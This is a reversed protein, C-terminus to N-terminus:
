SRAAWAYRGLWVKASAVRGAKRLATLALAGGQELRDRLGIARQGLQGAVEAHRGVPRQQDLGDGVTVRRETRENDAIRAGAARQARFVARDDAHEGLAGCDGQGKALLM